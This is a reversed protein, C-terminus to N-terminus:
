WAMRFSLAPLILLYVGSLYLGSFPMPIQTKIEVIRQKKVTEKHMVQKSFCATDAYKRAM